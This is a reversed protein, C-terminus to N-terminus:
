GERRFQKLPRMGDEPDALWEAMKEDLHQWMKGEGSAEEMDRVAKILLYLDLPSWCHGHSAEFGSGDLDFHCEIVEAGHRIASFIAAPRNTHDSWGIVPIDIQGTGALRMIQGLGEEMCCDELKAPYNSVCHLLTLPQTYSVQTEKALEYLRIIDRGRALGLSVMLTKQTMMCAGILDHRLIDFSSIKLWDVHGAVREVYDTHFPTIGFKIGLERCLEAIKPVWWKPLERERVTEIQETFEPAYLKNADFLQFKVGWCGIDQAQKVLNVTRDWDRNHNSGIEAIFRIM